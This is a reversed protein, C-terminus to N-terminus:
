QWGSQYKKYFKCFYKGTIVKPKYLFSCEDQCVNSIAAVALNLIPFESLGDIQRDISKDVWGHM